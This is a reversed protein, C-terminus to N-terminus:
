YAFFDAGHTLLGGLHATIATLIVAVALMFQAQLTRHRRESYAATVVITVATLTGMWRHATLLSSANASYSAAALLWGLAATPIAALAALRLCFKAGSAIRPRGQWTATLEGLAAALLLAIPFHLLVLHLKGLWHVFRDGDVWESPTQSQAEPPVDPAGAEIWKKIVDKQADTLPGRPSDPPPMEDHSVLSWLESEAPEGPIVMEPNKSIRQLDLVYGFRGRPNVLDSGHCGTCKAAFVERASTAIDGSPPEITANAPQSQFAVAMFLAVALQQYEKM